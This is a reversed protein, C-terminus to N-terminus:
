LFPALCRPHNLFAIIFIRRMGIPLRFRLVTKCITRKVVCNSKEAIELRVILPHLKQSVWHSKGHPRCGTDFGTHIPQCYLCLLWTKWITNIFLFSCSIFSCVLSPCLLILRGYRGLISISLFKSVTLLFYGQRWFNALHEVIIEGLNLVASVTKTGLTNRKM